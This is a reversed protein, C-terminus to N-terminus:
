LVVEQLTFHLKAANNDFVSHKQKGELGAPRRLAAASQPVSVSPPPLWLATM